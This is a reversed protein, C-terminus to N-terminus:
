SSIDCPSPREDPINPLQSKGHIHFLFRYSQKSTIGWYEVMQLLPFYFFFRKFSSMNKKRTTQLGLRLRVMPFFTSCCKLSVKPIRVEM